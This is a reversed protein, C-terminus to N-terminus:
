YISKSVENSYSSESGSNSYSTVVFYYTTELALNSITYSTVNGVDLPTGYRGSVTGMYVKYGALNTDTVAGWSLTAKTSSPPPSTPPPPPSTPPPPPSTPPPPPSTRPATVRLTVPISTSDGDDLTVTVTATYTGVALGAANATLVIQASTTISGSRSSITLWAASDRATWSHQRRGSRSLIVTQSPPNSGRVAQFNVTTPNATLASAEPSTWIDIALAVGFVWLLRFVFAYIASPRLLSNQNPQSM